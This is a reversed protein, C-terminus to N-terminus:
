IEKQDIRQSLKPVKIKHKKINIIGESIMVLIFGEFDM